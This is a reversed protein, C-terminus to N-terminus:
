DMTLYQLSFFNGAQYFIIQLNIIAGLSKAWLLLTTVCHPLNGSKEQLIRDFCKSKEGAKEMHSNNLQARAFCKKM